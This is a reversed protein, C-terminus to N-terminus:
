HVCLYKKVRAYTVEGIGRVEELQELAAFKGNMNRYEVVNSAIKSGFGPIASLEEQTASNIDIPILLIVPKAPDMRGVLATGQNKSLREITVTDGSKVRQSLSAEDITFTEELGGADKVLDGVTMTGNCRYIGPRKVQGLVEIPDGKEECRIIPDNNSVSGYPRNFVYALVFFLAFFLFM